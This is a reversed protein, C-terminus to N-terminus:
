RGAFCYLHRKGRIYLADGIAALSADIGEDLRNEALLDLTPGNRLVLVVGDRDAIYVRGAAGIPSSYVDTMNPLRQQVYNAKGTPAEYCSLIARNTDLVYLQREYLLPSPVYPTGRDVSWRIAPGGTLDGQHGLEIAQLVKGMFGSTAYVMGFGSVPMPIVNLTQGGAEWILEGTQPDYSRVRRTASVVVQAKGEHEVLMPSSWSTSEERPMKWRTEGTAADLATIFSDGEHDWNIFVTGHYLLPSSGEGFGRRTRMRGLDREWLKKGELDFAHVGRSGYHVYLREGDTVPSHSAYGHHKHHGEHPVERRATQQWLLEGTHRDFCLVNFDFSGAPHGDGSPQASLLFLREGWIVPSSSGDGPVAAKWRLHRDEGFETPPDADPAVGNMLPGRWHPWHGEAADSPAVNQMLVVAMWIFLGFVRSRRMTFGEKRMGQTLPNGGFPGNRIGGAEPSPREGISGPMMARVSM